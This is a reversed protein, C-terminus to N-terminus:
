QLAPTITWGRARLLALLGNPGPFHLAGVAVLPLKGEGALREIAAVMRPHRADILTTAVFRDAADSSTRMKALRDDLFSLDGRAWAAVLEGLEREAGGDEIGKVAQELYSMQVGRPARDFLEFQIEISELERLPVGRPRLLDTLQVETGLATQLGQRQATLVVLVNGVMWPKMRWVNQLPLGLRNAQREVRTKLAPALRTDLGPETAPYLAMQQTAAMVRQADFVDAELALVQAQEALARQAPSLLTQASGVHLTGMLLVRADGKRAEWQLGRVSEQAAAPAIPGLVVWAGVGLAVAASWRAWRQQQQM